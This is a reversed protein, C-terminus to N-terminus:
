GDGVNDFLFAGFQEATFVDIARVTWRDVSGIADGDEYIIAEGGAGRHVGCREGDPPHIGGPEDDGNRDGSGFSAVKEAWEDILEYTKM